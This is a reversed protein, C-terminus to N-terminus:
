RAGRKVNHIATRVKTLAHEQSPCETVYISLYTEVDELAGLLVYHSNCARVIFAANAMRETNKLDQPGVSNITALVTNLGKVDATINTGYDSYWPLPTHQLQKM